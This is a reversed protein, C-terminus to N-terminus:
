KKIKITNKIKCNGYYTYIKYSGVKLNKLSVTAIGKKNTKAKYTKGKFKFKVQKNKIPTKGKALKASFKITKAKRKSINKASLVKKIVIKNTAKLSKYTATATYTGPKLSIKLSALGKANTKATYTKKNIVIKVSKGALAKGDDGYLHVKYKSGDLYYMNLNAGKLKALSNVTIKNTTNSAYYVNNGGYGVILDYTGPSQTILLTAIGNSDTTANILENNITLSLSENALPNGSKDTLRVVYTSSVVYNSTVDQGTQISPLYDVIIKSTSNFSKYKNGIYTIEATYNGKDLNLDISATGNEDSILTNKEDNVTVYISENELANGDSDTLKLIFKGTNPTTSVDPAELIIHNDKVLVTNTEGKIDYIATLNYTGNTEPLKLEAIATGNVIETEFEEDNFVVTLNGEELYEGNIGVFIPILITQEAFGTQNDFQIVIDYPLAVVISTKINALDGNTYDASVLYIGVVSSYFRVTATGTELSFGNEDVDSGSVIFRIIGGSIGNGMDDTVSANVDLYKGALLTVTDNNNVTVTLNGSIYGENNYIHNNKDLSTCNILTNNSLTAIAYDIELASVCTAYLNKFINNQCSMNSNQPDIMYLYVGAATFAEASDFINNNIFGEFECYSEYGGDVFICGGYRASNNIFRNNTINITGFRLPDSYIVAIAGGNYCEDGGNNIFTNNTIQANRSQIEIAGARSTDMGTNNAIMNNKFICNTITANNGNSQIAPAQSMTNNEFLCNEVLINEGYLYLAGGTSSTKGRNNTFTSNLVRVNNSFVALGMCGAATNANDNDDFTVNVILGNKGFNDLESEENGGWVVAAGTRARNNTFYSNTLTGEDANWYIAGAKDSTNNVFIANDITVKANLISIASGWSNQFTIGTIKVEDETDITLISDKKMGDIIVTGNSSIEVAKNINLDYEEYKGENIVIKPSTKNSKSALEISKSITKVPQLSSGGNEDSGQMSVYITGDDGVGMEESQDEIQYSDTANDSAFSIPLVILVIIMAILIPMSKRKYM